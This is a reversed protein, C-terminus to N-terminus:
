EEKRGLTGMSTGVSNVRWWEGGWPARVRILCAYFTSCTVIIHTIATEFLLLHTEDFVESSFLPSKGTPCTSVEEEEPIGENKVCISTLDNTVATLM